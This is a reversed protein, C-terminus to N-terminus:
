PAACYRSRGGNARLMAVYYEAMAGARQLERPDQTLLSAAGLTWQAACQQKARDSNACYLFSVFAQRYGSFQAPSMPSGHGPILITFPTAAVQALATRWGEPCATDLFPAPLTVLDGVAAVKSREDYIWVDGATAANRALNIALRRGALTMVGSTSIMVDPMLAAGNQITALDARIDARMDEPIKADALYGPADRASAALFGALADKIADSAYVRLQPYATRLAANGSVHDLHWHSNVVAAVQRGRAFDLIAQRHWEHRGTDM